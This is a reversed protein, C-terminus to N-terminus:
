QRPPVTWLFIAREDVIEQAEPEWDGMRFAHSVIRTGPQLERMLKPRLKQNLSDLLYLTVVSAESIDAEFLDGQQITVLDEVGANRVNTRAEAIRKPDIDIGVARIGYERAATVPIRGDGSGLDYLVDGEEVRALKLMADVVPEPTPVYVVDPTRTEVNAATPASETRIQSSQNTAATEQDEPVTRADACASLASLPLAIKALLPLKM